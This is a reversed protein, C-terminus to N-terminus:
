LLLKMAFQGLNDFLSLLIHLLIHSKLPHLKLTLAEPQWDSYLPELGKMRELIKCSSPLNTSERVGGSSLPLHSPLKYCVIYFLM